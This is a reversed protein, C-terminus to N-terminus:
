IDRFHLFLSLSVPFFSLMNFIIFSPLLIIYFLVISCNQAAFFAARFQKKQLNSCVIQEFKKRTCFIITAM